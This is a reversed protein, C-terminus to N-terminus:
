ANYFLGRSFNVGTALLQAFEGGSCVRFATV